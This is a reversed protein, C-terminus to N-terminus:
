QVVIGDLKLYSHTPYLNSSDDSFFFCFLITNSPNHLALTTNVHIDKKSQPFSTIQLIWKYICYYCDSIM